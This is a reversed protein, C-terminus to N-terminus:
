SSAPRSTPRNEPLPAGMGAWPEAVTSISSPGSFIPFYLAMTAPLYKIAPPCASNGREVINTSYKGPKVSAILRFLSITTASSRRRCSAALGGGFSMSAELSAAASSGGTLGAVFCSWFELASSAETLCRWATVSSRMVFCLGGSMPLLTGSLRGSM